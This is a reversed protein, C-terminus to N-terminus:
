FTPASTSNSARFFFYWVVLWAAPVIIAWHDPAHVLWRLVAFGGLAIIAATFGSIQM